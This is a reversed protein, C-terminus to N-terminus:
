ALLKEYKSVEKMIKSAEEAFTKGYSTKLRDSFVITGEPRKVEVGGKEHRPGKIRQLKGSPTQMVEGGEVEADVMELPGGQAFVSGTPNNSSGLGSMYERRVNNNYRETEANQKALMEDQQKKQEFISAIGGAASLGAGVLTGAGGTMPGLASAMGGISSLIGGMDYEYKKLSKMKEQVTPIYLKEQIAKPFKLADGYTFWKSKDKTWSATRTGIRVNNIDEGKAIAESIDSPWGAIMGMNDFGPRKYTVSVEPINFPKKNIAREPDGKLPGANKYKKLQKKM